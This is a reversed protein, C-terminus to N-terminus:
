QQRRAGRHATRGALLFETELLAEGLFCELVEFLVAATRERRHLALDLVLHLPTRCGNRRLALAGRLLLDRLELLQDLL